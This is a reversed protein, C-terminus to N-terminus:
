GPSGGGRVGQRRLSTVCGTSLSRAPSVGSPFSVRTVRTPATLIEEDPCLSHIEKELTWAYGKGLLVVVKLSKMPKLLAPIIGWERVLDLDHDKEGM